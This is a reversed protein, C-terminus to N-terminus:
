PSNTGGGLTFYFTTGRGLESEAWIRGGHRHVIRQVIALGVGTGEFEEVRHLRQFVGFLKGVYRMDFGVGNDRVYYVPAREDPLWGVQVLPKERPRTFKVANSLLNVFVQRLLTPDAVCAPLDTVQFEIERDGREASLQELAHRAINAPEVRRKNLPQRGTRSLTLLDEILEGMQQANQRVLGLFRKGGEDLQAAHEELLIRSFGDIARLPARLDHSVSYSFAELEETRQAVREELEANLRVIEDQARKRQTVDMATVLRARRGQFTLPQSVIDVWVLAGDKRQHRWEGSFELDQPSRQVSELLRAIDEAPRIDKITMGLFEDRTYGYNAVAADNVALFRLTEMDYVWMPAPNSQFLLRYQAEGESRPRTGPQGLPASDPTEAM